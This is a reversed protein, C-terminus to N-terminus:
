TSLYGPKMQFISTISGKNAHQSSSHTINNPSYGSKTFLSTTCNVRWQQRGRDFGKQLKYLHRQDVSDVSGIINRRQQNNKFYRPLANNVPTIGGQCYQPLLLASSDEGLVDMGHSTSRDIAVNAVGEFLTDIHGGIGGFYRLLSSVDSDIIDFQPTIYNKYQLRLNSSGFHM